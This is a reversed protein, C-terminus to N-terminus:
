AEPRLHPVYRPSIPEDPFPWVDGEDFVEPLDTSVRLPFKAARKELFSAVGEQADASRMRGYLARSEAIHALMPHEAGLGRWMLRRTVATSVPSSVDCMSLALERTRPILEEPAILDRVLGSDVLEAGSILEGTYAWELARSIGVLRPLFWSSAGDAVIGRKAFLFGYRARESALRVDAALTVSAGFGIAACNVAAITPKLSDFIRLTVKGAWDRPLHPTEPDTEFRGSEFGGSSLDAGACFAKGAGTFIVAQVEDDGDTYDVAAILDERMTPNFANLRDPRNLTITAIGDTVGLTITEFLPVPSM